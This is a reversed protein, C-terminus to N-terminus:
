ERTPKSDSGKPHLAVDGPVDVWHLKSRMWIHAQPKLWGPDDFSGASLARAGPRMELTWTINGGCKACYEVRLWRETEDSRHEYSKLEGSLFEVDEQRFYVGVGFASGTRKRCFTCHCAIIRVPDAKVRYRVAGCVCGGEHGGKDRM